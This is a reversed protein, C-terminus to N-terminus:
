KLRSGPGAGTPAVKLVQGVDAHAAGSRAASRRKPLCGQRQGGNDRWRFPHHRGAMHLPDALRGVVFRQPDGPQIRLEILHRHSAHGEAAELHYGVAPMQPRAGPALRNRHPAVLRRHLDLARGEGTQAHRAVRLAAPQGLGHDIMARALM